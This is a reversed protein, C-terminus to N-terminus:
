PATIALGDGGVGGSLRGLMERREVDVEAIKNPGTEAVYLRKGDRSFLLTVQRADASGSLTMRGAPKRTAVDFFSLGGDGLDSTVATRGDPSIAVRIPFAGTPLEAVRDMTATDFIHLADGRRDAVWLTRGDPTLALGEPETGVAVDRLKREGVLDLVSVSGSGMNAVYARAGDPSVAVMHSGEQGTAITSVRRDLTDDVPPHVVVVSDSGETTAVIRGDPLWVIGHPRANPALDITDVRGRSAIDFLDITTGGYAVVAALTGDPSIAIEHPAEGTARRAVERGTELDIFSLSDEGKNGVLLLGVSDHDGASALTPAFLAAAALVVLSLKARM